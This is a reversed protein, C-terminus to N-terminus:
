LTPEIVYTGFSLFLEKWQDRGVDSIKYKIDEFNSSKIVIRLFYIWIKKIEFKNKYKWSQSLIQIFTIGLKRARVFAIKRFSNYFILNALLSVSNEGFSKIM